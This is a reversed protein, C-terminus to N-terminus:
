FIFLVKSNCIYCEILLLIMIRVYGYNIGYLDMKECLWGYFVRGDILVGFWGWWDCLGCGDCLKGCLEVVYCGGWDGGRFWGNKGDFEEGGM